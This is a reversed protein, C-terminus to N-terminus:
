GEDQLKRIYKLVKEQKKKSLKQFENQYTLLRAFQKDGKENQKAEIRKNEKRATEETYQEGLVPEEDEMLSATSVHYLAAFEHVESARLPRKDAEIASLTPRSMGMAKAADLQRMGSLIRAEKLREGFSM